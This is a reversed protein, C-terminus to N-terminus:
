VVPLRLGPELERLTLWRMGYEFDRQFTEQIVIEPYSPMVHKLSYAGWAQSLVEANGRDQYVVIKHPALMVNISHIMHCAADGFEADGLQQYWDPSGPLFKVEGAMGNKGKVIKGDLYIGMGPPHNHPFYIGIVCEDDDLDYGSCYGSIAANIDNEVMVPLGFQGQLEEVMRYGTLEPRSSVIIEGNVTQGPIGVGIVKVSPHQELIRGIAEYFRPSDFEPMLHEEKLLIRDDLNVVTASLLVQGQKEKIYMVLAHSYDYNYRYTLAPRGGSSPAIEDEIIEGYENLEKVLSNITVVSLKTLEALQPKTATEVRRMVQRVHNLNMEKMLNANAM